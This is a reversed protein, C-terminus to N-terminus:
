QTEQWPSVFGAAPQIPVDKRPTIAHTGVFTGAVNGGSSSAGMRAASCVAGWTPRNLLTSCDVSADKTAPPLGAYAAPTCSGLM